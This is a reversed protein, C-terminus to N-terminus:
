DGYLAQVILAPPGEQPRLSHTRLKAGYQKAWHRLGSRMNPVTETFDTGQTLSWVQGDLWQDLPYRENMTLHDRSRPHTWGQFHNLVEAM